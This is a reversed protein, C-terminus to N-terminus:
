ALAPKQATALSWYGETPVVQTNEFGGQKLLTSLEVASWQRGETWVLMDLNVLANALPGGQPNILKEHILIRGGPALADFARRVLRAGEEDDWDHIIQSLLVADFDAGWNDAFLDGQRGQVRDSLGTDQAREQIHPLVAPIEMVTCRLQPFAQALAISVTGSGGGADLLSRAGDLPAIKALAGAPRVSIAHMADSFARAKTPDAAHEAWPDSTGYVCPGGSQLGEIVRAPSLFDDVELEILGALSGERNKVCDRAAVPTLAFQDTDRQEIIQGGVMAALWARVGRESLGTEVALLTVTLPGKADLADFLGTRVGAALGASLRAAVYADYVRLEDEPKIDEMDTLM